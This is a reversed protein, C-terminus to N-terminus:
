KTTNKREGWSGGKGAHLERVADSPLFLLFVSQVRPIYMGEEWKMDYRLKWVTFCGGCKLIM